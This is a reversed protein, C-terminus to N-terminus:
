LFLYINQYEAMINKRNKPFPVFNWNDRDAPAYSMGAKQTMTTQSGTSAQGIDMIKQKFTAIDNLGHPSSEGIKGNKVGYLRVVSYTEDSMKKLFFIAETDMLLVPTDEVQESLNDVTGGLVHVQITSGSSLNSSGSNKLTDNLLVQATTEIHTKQANWASQIGIIKGYVIVDSTQILQSENQYVTLASGVGSLLCLLLFCAMFLQKKM